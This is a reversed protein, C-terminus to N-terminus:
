GYAHDYGKKKTVPLVWVFYNPANYFGQVILNSARVLDARKHLYETYM